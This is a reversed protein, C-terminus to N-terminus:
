KRTVGVTLAEGPSVPAVLSLPIRSGRLLVREVVMVLPSIEYARKQAAVLLKKQKEISDAQSARDILKETRYDQFRTSNAWFSGRFFLGRLYFYPMGVGGSFQVQYNGSQLNAVAVADQTPVVNAKIGIKALDSAILLAADTWQPRTWVQLEFSFGKKYPTKALLRRAAALDQAGDKPLMCRTLPTMYLLACAPKTLGLWVKKAIAKRDLALSIAQRVRPDGLPGSTKSLNFALFYMGAQPTAFVKVQPPFSNKSAIPLDTVFQITGQALQLVRSNLDQVAVFEIEDVKPKAWYNQNAKVLMSPGGPTWRELVLPGVSVPRRFYDPDDVKDTPHIMLYHQALVEPFDAFAAKLTWVITREDTTRVSKIRDFFPAGPGKRLREFATVVDRATVRSGDSYRLGPKLVHTVTRRDKSIRASQLLDLQPRRQADWRYLQGSILISPVYDNASQVRAPDLNVTPASLAIRLSVENARGESSAAVVSAAVACALLAIVYRAPLWVTRVTNM